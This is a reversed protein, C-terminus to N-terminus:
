VALKDKSSYVIHKVDWQANEIGDIQQENKM